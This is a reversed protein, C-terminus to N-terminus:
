GSNEKSPLAAMRMIDRGDDVTRADCHARDGRAHHREQGAKSDTGGAPRREAEVVRALLHIAKRLGQNLRLSEECSPRFWPRVSVSPRQCALRPGAQAWRSAPFGAPSGSVSSARTVSSTM